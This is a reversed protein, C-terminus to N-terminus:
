RPDDDAGLYKKHLVALRYSDNASLSGGSLKRRVLRDLLATEQGTLDHTRIAQLEKIMKRHERTM